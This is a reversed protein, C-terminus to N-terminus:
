SVSLNRGQYFNVYILSKLQLNMCISLLFILGLHSTFSKGSGNGFSASRSQQLTVWTGHVAPSGPPSCDFPGLSDSVNLRKVVWLLEHWLTWLFFLFFIGHIWHYKVDPYWIQFVLVNLLSCDSLHFLAQSFTFFLQHDLIFFSLHLIRGLIQPVMM